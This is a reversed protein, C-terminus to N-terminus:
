PEVTVAPHAGHAGADGQDARYVFSREAHEAELDDGGAVAVGVSHGVVELDGVTEVGVVGGVGEGIGVEVGEGIEGFELEAGIGAMGVGVAVGQAVAFFAGVAGVRQEEVGVAVAKGVTEFDAGAAVREVRRAVVEGDREGAERDCGRAEVENVVCEGAFGRHM